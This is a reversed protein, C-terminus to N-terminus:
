KGAGHSSFLFFGTIILLVLLKFAVLPTIQVLGFILPMTGNWVFAFIWPTLIFLLIILLIAGIIGLGFLADRM